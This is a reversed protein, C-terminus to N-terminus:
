PLNNSTPATGSPLGPVVTMDMCAEPQVEGDVITRVCSPLESWSYCTGNGNKDAICLGGLCEGSDRCKKGSDQSSISCRLPAEPGDIRIWKGGSQTCTAEDSPFSPPTLMISTEMPTEPIEVPSPEITGINTRSNKRSALVFGGITLIVILVLILVIVKIKLDNPNGVRGFGGAQPTPPISKVPQVTVPYSGSQLLPAVVPKIGEPPTQLTEM